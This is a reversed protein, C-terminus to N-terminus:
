FICGTAFYSNFDNCIKPMLDCPNRKMARKMYYGDESNDFKLDDMRNMFYELVNFYRPNILQDSDGDQFFNRSNPVVHPRIEVFMLFLALIVVIKKM